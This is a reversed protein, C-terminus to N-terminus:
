EAFLALRRRTGIEVGRHGTVPRTLQQVQARGAFQDGRDPQRFQVHRTPALKAGSQIQKGLGGALYQFICAQQEVHAFQRMMGIGGARRLGIEQGRHAMLDTGRQMAQQAHHFQDFLGLGLRGLEVHQSGHTTGSPLKLADEVIDEVQRADLVM